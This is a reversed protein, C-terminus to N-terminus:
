VHFASLTELVTAHPYSFCITTVALLANIEARRQSNQINTHIFADVRTNENDLDTDNTATSSRARLSIGKNEVHKMIIAQM